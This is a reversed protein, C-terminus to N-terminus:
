LVFPEPEMGRAAYYAMAAAMLPTVDALSSERSFVFGNDGTKKKVVGHAADDLADDKRITVTGNEIADFFQGCAAIVEYSSLPRAGPLKDLGEIQSAPGHHDFVFPVEELKEILDGLRETVWGTGQRNELLEVIGDTDCVAISTMARTPDTDVALFCQDDYAAKVDTAEDWLTPDIVQTSTLQPRNGFAREFEGEEEELAIKAHRISSVNQTHGFAPMWTGWLHEDNLVDADPPASWEFYCFDETYGEQVAKRGTRVKRNYVTSAGTGATSCVLVQAAIKTIMAPLLAQERRNDTDSFIEDMVAFDLVMGHGASESATLLDIRSGNVFTIAEHGNSRHVKKVLPWIASKELQPVLENLFKKRIDTGSQGTWVCQQSIGLKKPSEGEPWDERTIGWFLCRDLLISFVLSTKGSQRCVTIFAERFAPIKNGVADVVDVLECIVRLCILQWWM